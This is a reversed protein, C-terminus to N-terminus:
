CERGGSQELPNKSPAESGALAAFTTRGAVLECGATTRKGGRHFLREFM